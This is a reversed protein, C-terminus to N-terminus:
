LSSVNQFPHIIIKIVREEKVRYPKSFQTNYIKFIGIMTVVTLKYPFFQHFQNQTPRRYTLDNLSDTLYPTTKTTSLIWFFM